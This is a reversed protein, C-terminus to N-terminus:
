GSVGAIEPKGKEEVMSLKASDTNSSSAGVRFNLVFDATSNRGLVGLTNTNGGLAEM